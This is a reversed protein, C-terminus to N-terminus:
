PHVTQLKTRLRQVLLETASLSSQLRSRSQQLLELQSRLQDEESTLRRRTAERVAEPRLSGAIQLQDINEPRLEERIEELRGQLGGEKEGVVFLQQQLNELRQEEQVLHDRVSQGEIRKELEAIRTRLEHNEHRLKKITRHLGEADDPTANGRATAHKSPEQAFCILSCGVLLGTALVNIILRRTGLLMMM